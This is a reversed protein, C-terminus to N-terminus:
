LPLTPSISLDSDSVLSADAIGLRECRARWAEISTKGESLELVANFPELQEDGHRLFHEGPQLHMTWGQRILALGLASGVLFQARQVRQEPTLLTGAPVRVTSAIQPIRGVTQPLAGITMGELLAVHEQVFQQWSPLTVKVAIDEWSVRQLANKPMDPNVTDLLRREEEDLRNLLVLAPQPEDNISPLSLVEAAAIRERLPPHSDYPTTTAERLEHEIAAEASKSVWPVELFRSFGDAIPPIFGTRLLPLVETQWYTPWVWAASRLIRLGSTLPTTGTLICALEDARYEQRRSVFNVVRLFVQWYWKLLAMVLRYMLLILMPLAVGGVKGFGQFTRIMLTQARYRWPGLRTDGGYYHAMEHALVARFQSVNLVALLPLGLAMVRRSGVGMFGGRDAVWANPVGILYVEEPMPESLAGALDQIEAFLRPHSTSDILLGPATFKDRRPVLSWLMTAAITVGGILLLLLQVSNGLGNSWVALAPLVVCAAALLVTFLYSVVVMFLTLMAYLVLSRRPPIIVM